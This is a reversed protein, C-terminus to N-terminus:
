PSFGVIEDAIDETLVAAILHALIWTKGLQPDDTPLTDIDGLSKLRKFGVEIQWRDRYAECVSEAPLVREPLSTLLTLFGAAKTTRPDLRKGTRSAKRRRRARQREASEPPLPRILLRLDRDIDGIRVTAERLPVGEQLLSPLDVKKGDAGTLVLSRWGLRAIFDGGADVVARLSRRTAYNKDFITVRGADIRTMDAREAQKMNTLVLDTFRGRDPDYRAHLRWSAGKGPACIISGDVLSLALEGDTLPQGLRENLLATLIHGLWPAMKRMRGLVAKDSLEAIGADGAAAAAARL